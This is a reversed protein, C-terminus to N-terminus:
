WAVVWYIISLKIENIAVGSSFGHSLRSPLIYWECRYKDPLVFNSGSNLVLIKYGKEIGCITTSDSFSPELKLIDHFNLILPNQYNQFYNKLIVTDYLNLMERESGIIKYNNNETNSKFISKALYANKLSDFFDKDSFEYIKAIYSVAFEDCFYPLEVEESNTSEFVLKNSTASNTTNPFFNYITDPIYYKGQKSSSQSSTNVSKQGSCSWFCIIPIFIFLINKM